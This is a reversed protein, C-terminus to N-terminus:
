VLALALAPALPRLSLQVFPPALRFSGGMEAGGHPQQQEGQPWGGAFRMTFLKTAGQRRMPPLLLTQILLLPLM